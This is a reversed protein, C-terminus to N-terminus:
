GGPSLGSPAGAAEYPPTAWLFGDDVLHLTGLLEGSALDWFYVLGDAEAFLRSGDPTITLHSLNCRHGEFVRICQRSALDWLRAPATVRPHRSSTLLHRGDLVVCNYVDEDEARMLGNERGSRWNCLQVGYKTAIALQEGDAVAALCVIAGGGPAEIVELCRGSATDWVRVTGDGGGTALRRGDPTIATVWIPGWHGRFVQLCRCGNTSDWLRVTNDYSGTIVHRGDSTMELSSVIRDHGDMVGLCQGTKVEWLRASNDHSGTVLRRGDPTLLLKQVSGRHGELVAQCRGTAMDWVRATYDERTTVMQQSDPSIVFPANMGEFTHVPWGSALDWVRATRGGIDTVLRCGDPTIAM